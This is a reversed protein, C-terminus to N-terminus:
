SNALKANIYEITQLYYEHDFSEVEVKNDRDPDPTEMDDHDTARFYTIVSLYM